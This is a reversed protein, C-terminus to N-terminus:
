CLELYADLASPDAAFGEPQALAWDMFARTFDIMVGSQPDTGATVVVRPDAKLTPMLEQVAAWDAEGPETYRYEHGSAWAEVILEAVTM